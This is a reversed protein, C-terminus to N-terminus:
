EFLSTRQLNTAAQVHTELVELAANYVDNLLCGVSLKIMTSLSCKSTLQLWLRRRQLTLFNSTLDYIILLYWPFLRSSCLYMHLKDSLGRGRLYSDLYSENFNIYLFVQWLTFITHTRVCIQVGMKNSMNFKTLMNNSHVLAQYWRWTSKINPVNWTHCGRKGNNIETRFISLPSKNDVTVTNRIHKLM